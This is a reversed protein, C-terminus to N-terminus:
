AVTYAQVFDIATAKSSSGRRSPAAVSHRSAGLCGESGDGQLTGQLKINACRSM